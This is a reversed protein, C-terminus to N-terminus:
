LRPVLAVLLDSLIAGGKPAMEKTEEHSLEQGTIGAGMNTVVSFAAVRLGLFRALIVEPVTSMGVADAGLIKAMRIEAPTEFSPGSFWAYVGAHLALGREEAVARATQRITEDYATTMGTFRRDTPEGILPNAGSLNLHDEIMMVSGPQVEALLSGASNTLILTEIGIAKLAELPARMVDARGHEYYHSRGAMVVVPVGALSGIVLAGQHGSVTSAPFGDLDGYSITVADEILDTLGGLGSGLVLAIRPALDTRTRITAAAKEM